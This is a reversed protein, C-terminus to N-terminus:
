TPIRLGKLVEETSAVPDKRLRKIIEKDLANAERMVRPCVKCGKRKCGIVMRDSPDFVGALGDGIQEGCRGCYVYGWFTTVYRAHGHKVCYIRAKQEQSLKEMVIM